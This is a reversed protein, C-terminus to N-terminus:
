KNFKGMGTKKKREQHMYIYYIQHNSRTKKIINSHGQHSWSPQSPTLFWNDIQKQNKQESSGTVSLPMADLAVEDGDDAALDSGEAMAMGPSARPPDPSAKRRCATPRSAPDTLVAFM